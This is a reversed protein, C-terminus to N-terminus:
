FRIPPKKEAPTLLVGRDIEQTLLYALKPSVPRVLERLSLLSFSQADEVRWGLADAVREHLTKLQDM